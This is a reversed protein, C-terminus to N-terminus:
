KFNRRYFLIYANKSLSDDEDSHSVSSDSFRYWTNNRNCYSIYHGSNLSSGMHEAVAFLTYKTGDSYEDRIGKEFNKSTIYNSMNLTEKFEVGGNHKNLGDFRKIHLVLIPPLVCIETFKKISTKKKCSECKYDCDIEEESFYNDLMNVLKM